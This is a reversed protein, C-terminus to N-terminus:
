TLYINASIDKLVGTFDVLILLLLTSMKSDQGSIYTQISEFYTLLLSIAAVFGHPLQLLSKAPELLWNRLRDEFVDVLDDFSPNELKEWTFNPSIYNRVM